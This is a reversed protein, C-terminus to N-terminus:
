PFSDVKEFGNGVDVYQSAQARFPQGNEGEEDFMLCQSEVEVGIKHGGNQVIEKADCGSRTTLTSAGICLIQQSHIVLHGFGVFLDHKLVVPQRAQADIVFCWSSLDQTGAERTEIQGEKHVVLLDIENQVGDLEDALVSPAEQGKVREAHLRALPPVLVQLSKFVAFPKAVDAVFISLETVLFLEFM